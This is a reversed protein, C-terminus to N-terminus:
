EHIPVGLRTHTRVDTKWRADLYQKYAEHVDQINTFDIGLKSNQACNVFPSREGHPLIGMAYVMLKGLVYGCKHPKKKYDSFRVALAQAYAYLWTWNSDNERVWVACPHNVHTSKYPAIEKGAHYNIATCLLQTSELLMKNARKDDLYNAAIIPDDHTAFINM